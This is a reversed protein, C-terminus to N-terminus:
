LEGVVVQKGEEQGKKPLSAHASGVGDARKVDPNTGPRLQCRLIFGLLLDQLKITKNISRLVMFFSHWLKYVVVRKILWKCGMFPVIAVHQQQLLM